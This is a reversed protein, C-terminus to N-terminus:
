SAVKRRRDEALAQRLAEVDAETWVFDGSFDKGPPSLKQARLASAIRHYPTGLQRAVQSTKLQQM